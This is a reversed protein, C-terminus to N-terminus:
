NLVCFNFLPSALTRLKVSIQLWSVIYYLLVSTTDFQLVDRVYVVAGYDM